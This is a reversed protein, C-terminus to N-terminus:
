QGTHRLEALQRALIRLEMARRGLSDALIHLGDPDFRQWGSSLLVTVLTQRDDPDTSYPYQTLAAQLVQEPGHRTDVTLATEPGDHILDVLHGDQDHQGLCWAPEPVTITTGDILRVQTTRKM